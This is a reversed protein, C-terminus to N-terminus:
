LSGRRSAEAFEASDFLKALEVLIQEVTCEGIEWNITARPLGSACHELEPPYIKLEEALKKTGERIFQALKEGKLGPPYINFRVKGSSSSLAQIEANNQSFVSLVGDRKSVRYRV